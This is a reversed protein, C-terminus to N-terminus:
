AAPKQMLVVDKQPIECTWSYHHALHKFTGARYFVVHTPDKRYHWAAFHADDTQFCTMVALWGGPRLRQDFKQFELSPNHFHEAVESCTIVDYTRELVSRDAAYFPDYITVNHGAQQLIDALAPGPGAGYDLIDKRGDLKELLPKVLKSLFARYRPDSVDNEHLNYHSKEQAPTPYYEPTVFRAQCVTCSRYTKGDLDALHSTELTTCVPCRQAPKSTM